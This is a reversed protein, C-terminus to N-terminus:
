ETVSSSAHLGVIGRKGLDRIFLAVAQEAESSLGGYRATLMASLDRVSRGNEIGEWVFTGMADLELTRLPLKPTFRSFASLWRPMSGPYVIRILNQDTRTTRIDPLIVPVAQLAETRSLPTDM